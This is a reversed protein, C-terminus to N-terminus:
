TDPVLCTRCTGVAAHAAPNRSCRSLTGTRPDSFWAVRTGGPAVWVGDRDQDIGEYRKLRVGAAELEAISQAIDEVRGGLVTYPAHAPSEVLTVRLQTGNADYLKAFWVGRRDGRRGSCGAPSCQGGSRM